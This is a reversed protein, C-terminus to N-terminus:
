VGNQATVFFESRKTISKNTLFFLSMAHTVVVSFSFGVGGWRVWVRASAQARSPLGVSSIFRARWVHHRRPFLRAARTAISNTGVGEVKVVPGSM